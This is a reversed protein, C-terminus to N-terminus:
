GFTVNGSGSIPINDFATDDGVDNGWGDLLELGTLSACCGVLQPSGSADPNAGGADVAWASLQGPCRHAAPPTSIAWGGRYASPGLVTLLAPSTGPQVVDVPVDAVGPPCIASPAEVPGAGRGWSRLRAALLALRGGAGDDPAVGVRPRAPCRRTPSNVGLACGAYRPPHTPSGLCGLLEDAEQRVM